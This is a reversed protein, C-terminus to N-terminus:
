APDPRVTLSTYCMEDETGEAFVIWRPETEHRQGRDWTCTVRIVDGREVRLTEVPSYSLQWAFNWVPIDLLV